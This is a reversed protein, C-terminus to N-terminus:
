VHGALWNYLGLFNRWNALVADVFGASSAARVPLQTHVYLASHRLLRETAGTAAFGRPVRKFTEGGIEYGAAELGSVIAALEAGSAPACVAARYSSLQDSDFGHAGAGVLVADPAVRLFLGGAAAARDGTWFWFDLHDKYPRKDKSFRIDRNIRFISGRVWPEARIGPVLEGLEPGIAEVFAKAPELYEAEYRSRNTDFWAKDNHIRLDTLFQVTAAPFRFTRM